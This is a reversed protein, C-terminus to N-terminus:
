KKRAQIRAVTSGVPRPTPIIRKVKKPLAIPKRAKVKPVKKPTVKITVEHGLLSLFHFIREFPIDLLNDKNLAAAETPNMGLAKSAAKKTLGQEKILSSIQCTLISKTLLEEANEFGLDEFVNGSSQTCEIQNKM